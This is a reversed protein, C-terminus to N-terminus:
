TLQSVEGTFTRGDFLCCLIITEDVRTKGGALLGGAAGIPGLLAAGLIGGAVRGVGTYSTEHKDSVVSSGSLDSLMIKQDGIAMLDNPIDWAIGWMGQRIDGGNVLIVDEPFSM